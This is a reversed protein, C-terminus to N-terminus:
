FLFHHFLFVRHEQTQGRNLLCQKSVVTLGLRKPEIVWSLHKPFPRHELMGPAFSFHHQELHEHAGLGIECGM